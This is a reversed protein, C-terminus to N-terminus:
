KQWINKFYIIPFLGVLIWFLLRPILLYLPYSSWNSWITFVGVVGVYFCIVKLIVIFVPGGEKPYFYEKYRIIGGYFYLSFIILICYICSLVITDRSYIELLLAATVLLIALIDLTKKM